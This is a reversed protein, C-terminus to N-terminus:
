GCGGDFIKRPYERRYGGGLLLGVFLGIILLKKGGSKPKVEITEAEEESM